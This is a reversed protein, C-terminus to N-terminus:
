EKIRVREGDQLSAPPNTVIREGSALGDKVLVRDAREDGLQVRRFHVVERELVFVGDQGDIRAVANRPILIMAEAPGSAASAQEPASFVVRAGMEPRLKDDPGDFGVRVEVTAKQRNATPWIRKVHGPYLREPYADLYISAPADIVAAALSTEQLEVQVELSSWDVMTAVSGRSNGGQSNPSVVEGVEADKLV